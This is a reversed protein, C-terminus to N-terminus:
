EKYETHFPALASRYSGASCCSCPLRACSHTSTHWGCFFIDFYLVAFKQSQSTNEQSKMHFESLRSIRTINQNLQHLLFVNCSEGQIKAEECRVGFHAAAAMVVGWM